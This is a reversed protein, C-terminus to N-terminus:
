KRISARYISSISVSLMIFMISASTVVHSLIPTLFAYFVLQIWSAIFIPPVVKAAKLKYLRYSIKVYIISILILAVSGGAIASNLFENHAHMPRWWDQNVWTGLLKPGAIFGHGLFPADLFGTFGAEWVNTRSNLSSLNISSDGRSLLRTFSAFFEGDISLFIVGALLFAGGLFAFQSRRSKKAMQLYAISVIAGAIGGRSYTLIVVFFLGIGWAKAIKSSSGFLFFISGIGALLALGNPGTLIGGFRVVYSESYYTTWALEPAFVAAVLVIGVPVSAVIKFFKVSLEIAKHPDNSTASVKSFISYCLVLLIVWEVLRYAGLILDGPSVNLVLSLAFSTLLLYELTMSYSRRRTAALSKKPNVLIITKRFSFSVILMFGIIIFLFVRYVSQPNIAGVQNEIGSQDFSIFGINALVILTLLFMSFRKHEIV